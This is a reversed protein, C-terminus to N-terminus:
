SQVLLGGPVMSSSYRAISRASAEPPSIQALLFNSRYNMHRATQGGRGRPIRCRDPRPERRMNGQCSGLRATQPELHHRHGSRDPPQVRHEDVSGRKVSTM